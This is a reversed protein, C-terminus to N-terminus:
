ARASAGLGRDGRRRPWGEDVATLMEGVTRCSEAQPDAIRVAFFRELRAVLALVDLPDAGLDALDASDVVAARPVGLHDAILQRAAADDM